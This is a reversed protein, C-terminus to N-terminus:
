KKIVFGENNKIRPVMRLFISVVAGAEGQLNGNTTSYGLPESRRKGCESSVENMVGFIVSFYHSHKRYLRFIVTFPPDM